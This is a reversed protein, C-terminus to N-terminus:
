ATTFQCTGCFGYSHIAQYELVLVFTLHMTDIQSGDAQMFFACEPPYQALRTHIYVSQQFPPCSELTLAPLQM